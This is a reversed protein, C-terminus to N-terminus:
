KSIKLQIFNYEVLIYLYDVLFPTLVLNTHDVSNMNVHKSPYLKGQGLHMLSGLTLQDAYTPANCKSNIM